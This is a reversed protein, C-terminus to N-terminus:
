VEKVWEICKEVEKIYQIVEKKMKKISAAEKAENKAKVAASPSSKSVQAIHIKGKNTELQKLKKGLFENEKELREVKLALQKAKIKIADLSDKVLDM